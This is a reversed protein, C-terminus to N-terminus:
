ECRELSGMAGFVRLASDINNQRLHLSIWHLATTEDHPIGKSVMLDIFSEAKAYDQARICAQILTSYAARPTYIKHYDFEEWVLLLKGLCMKHHEIAYDIFHGEEAEQAKRAEIAAREEEGNLSFFHEPDAVSHDQQASGDALSQGADLRGAAVALRRSQRAPPIIRMYCDMIMTLIKSSPKVKHVRMEDLVSEVGRVSGCQACGKAIAGFLGIDLRGAPLDRVLGLCDEYAGLSSSSIAALSRVIMPLSMGADIAPGINRKLCNALYSASLNPLLDKPDRQCKTLSVLVHSFARTYIKRTPSLSHERLVRLVMDAVVCGYVSQAVSDLISQAVQMKVETAGVATRVMLLLAHMYHPALRDTLRGWVSQRTTHSEALAGVVWEFDVMRGAEVCRFLVTDCVDDSVPGLGRTRQLYRLFNAADSATSNLALYHSCLNAAAPHMPINHQVAHSIMAHSRDRLRNNICYTIVMGYPLSRRPVPLTCLFDFASLAHAIGRHEILISVLGHATSAPLNLHGLDTSRLHDRLHDYVPLASLPQPGHLRLRLAKFLLQISAPVGLAFLRDFAGLAVDSGGRLWLEDVLRGFLRFSPTFGREAMSEAMRALERPEISGDALALELAINETENNEPFRTSGLGGIERALPVNDVACLARVARSVGQGPKASVRRAMAAVLPRNGRRAANEMIVACLSAPQRAPNATDIRGAVADFMEDQQAEGYGRLLGVLFDSDPARGWSRMFASVEALRASSRSQDADLACAQALAGLAQADPELGLRRMTDFLAYAAPANNMQAYESLLAGFMPATARGGAALRTDFLAQGEKQRVSWFLALCMSWDVDDGKAEAAAYCRQADKISGLRAYARILTPRVLALTEAHGQALDREIQALLRRGNILGLNAGYNVLRKAMAGDLATGSAIAARYARWVARPDTCISPQDLLGELAEALEPGSPRGAGESGLPDPARQVQAGIPQAPAQPVLPPVNDAGLPKELRACIREVTAIEGAELERRATIETLVHAIRGLARAGDTDGAMVELLRELTEWSLQERSVRRYMGWAEERRAASGAQSDARLENRLRQDATLGATTLRRRHQTSIQKIDGTKATRSHAIARRRLHQWAICNSM